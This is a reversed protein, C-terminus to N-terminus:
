VQLTFRSITKREYLKENHNRDDRDQGSHQQRRQVLCPILSMGDAALVVEFAGISNNLKVTVVIGVPIEGVVNPKSVPGFGYFPIIRGASFIRKKGIQTELLGAIEKERYVFVFSM